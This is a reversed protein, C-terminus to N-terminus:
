FAINLAKKLTESEEPVETDQINRCWRQVVAGPDVPIRTLDCTHCALKSCRLTSGYVKKTKAPSYTIHVELEKIKRRTLHRTLHFM